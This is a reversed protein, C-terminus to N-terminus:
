HSLKVKEQMDGVEIGFYHRANNYCIDEVIKGIFRYDKPLEGAEIWTGFLNCLIRRFYEHRPFSLFSRSDTLMGVFTSLLGINALTKMQNIMGDKQDNFWWGSGFQIKGRADSSQFNGITSAVVYNHVPNLNYIITKPLHNEKELADLFANLKRALQFDLISDYGSDKGKLTFMRSNNDRLAGIHLQMTWGLSHYLRGLHIMTLTQFKFVEELSLIEGSMAKDFITSVEKDDTQIFPLEEFGHDSIRCGHNHFYKIRSELADLFDKYLSISKNTVSSLKNVYELFNKHNINLANDPRFTPLVKTEVEPDESIKRHHELTDTPDDTTCLVKVNFKKLIGHPSLSDDKLKENCTNWIEEANSESLPENIDFYRSLELHTWHYLPNGVTYPVTRAWSLFKEKDTADGTIVREELGLWRMARWKYHDKSLWIETINKYKKNSAIESPILHSHFDYIPMKKAYDHFLIRSSENNLMMDESLFTSV